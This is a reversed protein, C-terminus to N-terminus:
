RNFAMVLGIGVVSGPIIYPIMSMTDIVNNMANKRRVVLYAIIIELIVTVALALGGIYFTNPIAQRMRDM